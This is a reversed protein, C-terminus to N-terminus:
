FVVKLYTAITSVDHKAFWKGLVEAKKGDRQIMKKLASGRVRNRSFERPYLKGSDVDWVLLGEAIAIDISAITYERKQKVREHITLLIDSKKSEDFSRAYSQLGDRNDNIPELLEKSTLIASAVFHLLAIPADETPHGKNYGKTFEWLLYAGIIPTNWLKVEEVLQGLNERGGKQYINKGM